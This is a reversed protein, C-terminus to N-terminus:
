SHPRRSTRRRSPSTSGVSSAAPWSTAAAITSSGSAIPDPGNTTGVGAAAAESMAIAM